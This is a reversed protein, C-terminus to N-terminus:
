AHVIVVKLDAYSAIKRLLAEEKEGLDDYLYLKTLRDARYFGRELLKRELILVAEESTGLLAPLLVSRIDNQPYDFRGLTTKGLCYFFNPMLAKYDEKELLNFNVEVYFVDPSPRQRPLAEYLRLLRYRDNFIQNVAASRKTAVRPLPLQHFPLAQHMLCELDSCTSESPKSALSYPVYFRDLIWDKKALLAQLRTEDDDSFLDIFCEYIQREDM